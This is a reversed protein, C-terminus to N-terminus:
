LNIEVFYFNFFSNKVYGVKKEYVCEICTTMLTCLYKSNCKEINENKKCDNKANKLFRYEIYIIPFATKQHHM